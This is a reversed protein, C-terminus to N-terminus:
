YLDLEIQLEGQCSIQEGIWYEADRTFSIHCIDEIVYSVGDEDMSHEYVSVEVSVVTYKRGNHTHQGCYMPAKSHILELPNEYPNDSRNLVSDLVSETTDILNENRVKEECNFAAHSVVTFLSLSILMATIKLFSKM